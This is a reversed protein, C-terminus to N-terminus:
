RPKITIQPLSINRTNQVQSSYVVLVPIGGTFHAVDNESIDGDSFLLACAYNSKHANLYEFFVGMNTGGRGKVSTIDKHSEILRPQTQQESDVFLLNVAINDILLLNAIEQKFEVLEENSVSGSTDWCVLIDASFQIKTNTISGAEGYVRSEFRKQKYVNNTMNSGIFNRMFARYNMAPPTLKTLEAIAEEVGNSINGKSKQAKLAEEGEKTSTVERIISSLVERASQQMVAREEKTMPKGKESSDSSDGLEDSSVKGYLDDMQPQEPMNDRVEILLKIYARSGMTKFAQDQYTIPMINREHMFTLLEIETKNLTDRIQVMLTDYRVREAPLYNDRIHQNIEADMGINNIMQMQESNASYLASNSHDFICHLLEHILVGEQTKIAANRVPNLSRMFDPNLFIIYRGTTSIGACATPISYSPKVAIANLIYGYFQYDSTFLLLNRKIKYILDYDEKTVQSM